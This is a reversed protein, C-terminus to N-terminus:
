RNLKSGNDKWAEDERCMRGREVMHRRRMESAWAYVQFSTRHYQETIKQWQDQVKSHMTTLGQSQKKDLEERETSQRLLITIM